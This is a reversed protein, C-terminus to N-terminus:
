AKTLKRAEHKAWAQKELEDEGKHGILEKPREPTIDLTPRPLPELARPVGTVVIQIPDHEESQGVLNPVRGDLRDALEKISGTDGMTLLRRANWRLTGKPPMPTNPDSALAAIEMRM